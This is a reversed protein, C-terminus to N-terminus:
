KLLGRAYWSSGNSASAYAYGHKWGNYYVVRKGNIVRGVEARAYGGNGVTAMAPATLGAVGTCAVIISLAGTAIKRNSNM